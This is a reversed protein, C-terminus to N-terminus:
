ARGVKRIQILQDDTFFMNKNNGITIIEEATKTGKLILKEWKVFASKFQEESCHKQENPSDKSESTSCDEGDNDEGGVAIGLASTLTYRKLYTITSGVAQIFNKNGSTDAPASMSTEKFFGDKHSVICTVKIMKSQLDQDQEFRYGLSTQALVPKIAISIDEFKGYLTNNYTLGKKEIVPCESQFKSLAEYFSKEAKKNEYREQLNMLGELKVLDFDNSVAMQILSMYPDQAVAIQHIPEDIEVLESKKSM